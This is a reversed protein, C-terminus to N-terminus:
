KPQLHRITQVRSRDVKQAVGALLINKRALTWCPERRKGNKYEATRHRKPLQRRRLLHLSWRHAADHCSQLARPQCLNLGIRFIRPANTNRCRSFPFSQQLLCPCPSNPKHCLRKAIQPTRFYFRQEM